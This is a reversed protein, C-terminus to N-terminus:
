RGHLRAEQDHQKSVLRYGRVTTKDATMVVASAWGQGFHKVIWGYKESACFESTLM